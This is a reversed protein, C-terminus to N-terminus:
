RSKWTLLYGVGIVAIVLISAAITLVISIVLRDSAAQIEGTDIRVALGFDAGIYGPPLFIEYCMGDRSQHFLSKNRDLRYGVIELPEGSQAVRRGDLAFAEVGTVDEIKLLGDVTDTMTNNQSLTTALVRIDQTRRHVIDAICQDITVKTILAAFVLVASVIILKFFFRARSQANM